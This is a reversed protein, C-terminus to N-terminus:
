SLFGLGERGDRKKRIKQSFKWNEILFLPPQFGHIVNGIEWNKSAFSEL